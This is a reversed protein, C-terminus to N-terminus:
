FIRIGLVVKLMDPQVDFRATRRNFSANNDVESFNREYRVDVHFRSFDYGVSGIFGYSINQPSQRYGEFEELENEHNTVFHITPGTSINLGHYNLGALANVNIYSTKEIFDTKNNRIISNSNIKYNANTSGYTGELRTFLNAANYQAFLGVEKNNDISVFDVQHTLYGQANGVKVTSTSALSKNFSTLVGGSVQSFLQGAFLMAVVTFIHKVNM